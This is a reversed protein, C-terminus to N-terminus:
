SYLYSQLSSSLCSNSGGKLMCAPLLDRGLDTRDLSNLAATSKCISEHLTPPPASLISFSSCVNSRSQPSSPLSVPEKLLLLLQYCLEHATPDFIPVSRSRSCSCRAPSRTECGVMWPPRCSACMRVGTRRARGPRPQRRLLRWTQTRTQAPRGCASGRLREPPHPLHLPRPTKRGRRHGTHAQQHRCHLACADVNTNLNARAYSQVIRYPKPPHTSVIVPGEFHM